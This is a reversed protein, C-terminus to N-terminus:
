GGALIRYFESEEVQISEDEDWMINDCIEAIMEPFWNWGGERNPDHADEEMKVKYDFLDKVTMVTGLYRDMDGHFNERHPPVWDDVILVRAGKYLRDIDVM